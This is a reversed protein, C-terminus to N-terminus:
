VGAKIGCAFGKMCCRIQQLLEFPTKGVLQELTMHVKVVLKRQALTYRFDRELINLLTRPFHAELEKCEPHTCFTIM